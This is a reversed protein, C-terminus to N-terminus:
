GGMRAIKEIKKKLELELYFLNKLSNLRITIHCTSRKILCSSGKATPKLKKITIGKNVEIQSIFLDAKNYGKNQCANAAASYVLQLIPYSGRYPMFQLRMLAQEYSRGRIQDIVRRAKHASM